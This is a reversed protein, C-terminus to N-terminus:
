KGLCFRSFIEEVIDDHVTDGTISGLADWAQRIDVVACDLPMGDQLSQQARNLAEASQRVLEIHRTNTLLASPGDTFGGKLVEQLLMDKLEDLGKGTSASIPCLLFGYPSLDKSTVVPPLDTKNLVVIVNKGAVSQLIDKDEETLPRSSDIVALIIDARDLYQRARSVGIKEVTDDTERIGATDVVCVPIGGLTIWEELVDRTTGPVDTVIAREEQLLRNLLSSKGANPTGAIAAMVGDRIMRGSQSEELMHQLKEQMGKLAGSVDPVAIDELDEEPYDIMVELRTVLETLENRTKNIVKSLRGELQSVASTLGARSKAQIVDMVAEAQALDIRGNVFARETFEGPNAMRAGSRLILQLISELAERGGHCQIELVDEATYSHPGKMILALVEDICTGNEDVITGYQISRDRREKLPVESKSKFIKDGVAYAGPGSIRVAGIGSEGLPTTIAAITDATDYM